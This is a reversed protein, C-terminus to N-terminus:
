VSRTGEVGRKQRALKRHLFWHLAEEIKTIAIANERCKYPGSQFANMRDLVIELLAEDTIGNWGCEKIPGKQFHIVYRSHLARDSPVISMEATNEVVQLLYDHSAGGEAPKDLAVIAIYEHEFPIQRVAPTELGTPLIRAPQDVLVPPHIPPTWGSWNQEREAASEGFILCDGAHRIAAEWATQLQVPLDEFDPMPEGRYNKNGTSASYARYASKAIEPWTMQTVTSEENVAQIAQENM